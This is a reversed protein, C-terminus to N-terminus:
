PHALDDHDNNSLHKDKPVENKEESTDNIMLKRKVRFGHSFFNMDNKDNLKLRWVNIVKSSSGADNM